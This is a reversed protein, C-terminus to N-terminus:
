RRAFGSLPRSVVGWPVIMSVGAKMGTPVSPATFPRTLHVIQLLHAGLDHQRIQVVQRQRGPM